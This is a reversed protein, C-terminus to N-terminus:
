STINLAITLIPAEITYIDFANLRNSSPQPLINARGVSKIGGSLTNRKPPM